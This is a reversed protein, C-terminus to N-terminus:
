GDGDVDASHMWHAGQGQWRRGLKTNDWRWVQRLQKGDFRYAVVVILSYTGREVILHPHRGDLYAVGLQNRSSYNYGARDGHRDYFPKRSPWDIRTVPRGTVGDLITLYEPGSRVRGDPDRPDGEGTKVAVEAKGDGDFDYVVYPSYWIGREIAWGLDYRWLFRGSATYAELKYTGPSPKWYKIYPDINANPQKIVFDYRGDGDLDAIGVKQFTTSQDQLRIRVFPRGAEDAAVRDTQSPAREKGDVVPRVFWFSPGVQTASRDVFDTTRSIPQRTIRVPQGSEGARRYVHFTVDPPDSELLRWGLYVHGDPLLRAILGRDLTELQREAAEASAAWTATALAGVFVTVRCVLRRACNRNSDKM